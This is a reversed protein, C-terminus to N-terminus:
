EKKYETRMSWLLDWLANTLMRQTTILKQCAMNRKSRTTVALPDDFAVGATRLENCEVCLVHYHKYLAICELELEDVNNWLNEM